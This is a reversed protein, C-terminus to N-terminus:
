CRIHALVKVASGHILDVHYDLQHVLAPVFTPCSSRALPIPSCVVLAACVLSEAHARCRSDGLLCSVLLCAHRRGESKCSRSARQVKQVRCLRRNGQQMGYLIANPCVSSSIPSRVPTPNRNHQRCVLTPMCPIASRCAYM